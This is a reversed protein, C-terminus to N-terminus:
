NLHSRKPNMFATVCVVFVIGAAICWQVLGGDEDPVKGTRQAQASVALMHVALMAVVVPRRYRVSTWGCASRSRGIVRAVTRVWGM